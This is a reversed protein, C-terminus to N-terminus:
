PLLAQGAMESSPLILRSIIKRM